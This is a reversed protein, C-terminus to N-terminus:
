LEPTRGARHERRVYANHAAEAEDVTGGALLTLDYWGGANLNLRGAYAEDLKRCADIRPRNAELGLLEDETM